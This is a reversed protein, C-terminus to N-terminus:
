SNAITFDGRSIVQEPRPGGCRKVPDGSGFGIMDPAGDRVSLSIQAGPGVVFDQADGVVGTVVVIPGFKRVCEVRAVAWGIRSDDHHSLWVVGSGTRGDGRAHVRFDFTSMPEAIDIASWGLVSVQRPSAPSGAAATPTLMLFAALLFAAIRKM